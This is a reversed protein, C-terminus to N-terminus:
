AMAAWAAYGGILSYAEAFGSEQLYKAALQSSNGHYCCVVVPVTKDASNAFALFNETVSESGPIHGGLFSANDRIDIVRVHQSAMKAKADKVSIESVVQM